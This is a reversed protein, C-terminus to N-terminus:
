LRSIAFCPLPRILFRPDAFVPSEIPFMNDSEASSDGPVAHRASSRSLAVGASRIPRGPPASRQQEAHSAKGRKHTCTDVCAAAARAKAVHM